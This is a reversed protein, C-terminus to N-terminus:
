LFLSTVRRVVGVGRRSVALQISAHRCNQARFPLFLTPPTPPSIPLSLSHTYISAAFAHEFARVSTHVYGWGLTSWSLADDQTGGEAQLALPYDAKVSAEWFSKPVFPISDGNLGAGGTQKLLATITDEDAAGNKERNTYSDWTLYPRRHFAVM